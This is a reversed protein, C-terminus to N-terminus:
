PSESKTNRSQQLLILLEKQAKADDPMDALDYAQILRARTNDRNADQALAAELQKIAALPENNAILIEGYSDLLEPSSGYREIISEILAKAEPASSPDLRVMAVSLNNAAEANEPQMEVVKRWHVAADAMRGRRMLTNALLMHTRASAKGARIHQVLIAEIEKPPRLQIKALDAVTESIYPNEPDVAAAEVLLNMDATWEGDNQKVTKNFETRYVESLYRRLRPKSDSDTELGQRLSEIAADVRGLLLECRAYAMRDRETEDERGLRDRYYTLAKEAAFYSESELGAVNALEAVDLNLKSDLQAASEAVELAKETQGAKVLLQAYLVLYKPEIRPWQSAAEFHHMMRRLDVKEGSLNQKWLAMARYAHAAGLRRSDVPALEALRKNAAEENGLLTDIMALRFSSEVDKKNLQMVRQLLSRAEELDATEFTPLQAMGEQYEAHTEPTDLLEIRGFVARELDDPPIVTKIKGLYAEALYDNPLFRVGAAVVFCVFMGLVVPACAFIIWWRRTLRWGRFADLLGGVLHLPQNYLKWLQDGLTDFGTTPLESM